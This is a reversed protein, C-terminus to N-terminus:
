TWMGTASVTNIIYREGDETVQAYTALQDIVGKFVWCQDTSDPNIGTTIEINRGALNKSISANYLKHLSMDAIKDGSGSCDKIPGELLKLEYSGRGKGAALVYQTGDLAVDYQTRFPQAGGAQDMLLCDLPKKKDGISVKVLRAGTIGLNLLLNTRNGFLANSKNDAM